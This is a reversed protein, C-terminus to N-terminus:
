TISKEAQKSIQKGAYLLEHQESTVALKIHQVETEM